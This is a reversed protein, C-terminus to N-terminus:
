SVQSIRPPQAWYILAAAMIEKMTPTWTFFISYLARPAKQRDDLDQKHLQNLQPFNLFLHTNREKSFSMVLQESDGPVKSIAATLRKHINQLFESLILANYTTSVGFRLRTATWVVMRGKCSNRLQALLGEELQQVIQGLAMVLRM